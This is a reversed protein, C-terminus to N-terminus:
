QKRASRALSAALSIIGSRLARKAGEPDQRVAEVLKETNNLLRGADALVKDPDKEAQELLKDAYVGFQQKLRAGLGPPEVVPEPPLQKIRPKKSAPKAAKKAPRKAKAKTKRGGAARRASM